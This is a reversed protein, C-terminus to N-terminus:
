GKVWNVMYGIRGHFESEFATVDKLAYACRCFAVKNM